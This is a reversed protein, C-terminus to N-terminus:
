PEAEGSCLGIDFVTPWFRSQGGASLHRDSAAGLVVQSLTRSSERGLPAQM